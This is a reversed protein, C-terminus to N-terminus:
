GQPLLTSTWFVTLPEMLATDAVTKDRGATGQALAVIPLDDVSWLVQASGTNPSTGKDTSTVSKGSRGGQSWTKSTEGVSMTTFFSDRTDADAFQLYIATVALEGTEFVCATFAVPTLGANKLQAILQRLLKEDPVCLTKTQPAKGAIGKICPSMHNADLPTAACAQPDTSGSSSASPSSGIASSSGVASSSDVASSGIAGSSGSEGNSELISSCPKAELDFGTHQTFYSQVNSVGVSTDQGPPRFIGFLPLATDEWFIAPEGDVGFVGVVFVGRSRRDASIFSGCTKPQLLTMTTRWSADRATANTNQFLLSVYQKDALYCATWAPALSGFNDLDAQKMGIKEADRTCEAGTVLGGAFSV